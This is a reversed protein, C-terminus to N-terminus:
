IGAGARAFAPRNRGATLKGLQIAASELFFPRSEERRAWTVGRLGFQDLFEELAGKLDFIDCRADREAGDWFLPCRAGPSPWAWAASNRSTKDPQLSFVRGIEFLAVDNNKRSINYRM